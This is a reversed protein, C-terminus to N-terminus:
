FGKPTKCITTIRLCNILVESIINGAKKAQQVDLSGTTEWGVGKMWNLDSRYKKQLFFWNMYLLSDNYKLKTIETSWAYKFISYLKIESEYMARNAM